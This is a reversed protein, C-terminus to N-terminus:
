LVVVIVWAAVLWRSNRLLDLRGVALPPTEARAALILYVEAFAALWAADFNTNTSTYSDLLTRSM